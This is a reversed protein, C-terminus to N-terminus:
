AVLSLLKILVAKWHLHKRCFHTICEPIVESLWKDMKTYIVTRRALRYKTELMCKHLQTALCKQGKGMLLSSSSVRHDLVGPTGTPEQFIHICNKDNENREKNFIIIRAQWTGGTRKQSMLGLLALGIEPTTSNKQTAATSVKLEQLQKTKPKPISHGRLERFIGPPMCTASGKLSSAMSNVLSSTSCLSTLLSASCKPGLRQQKSAWGWTPYKQYEATKARAKRQKVWM